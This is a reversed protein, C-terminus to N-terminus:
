RILLDCQLRVAACGLAVKFRKKILKVADKKGVDTWNAPTMNSTDSQSGALIATETIFQKFGKYIEGFNGVVLHEVGGNSYSKCVSTFPRSNDGPAIKDDLNKCRNLYSKLSSNARIEVDKQPNGPCYITRRSDVRM